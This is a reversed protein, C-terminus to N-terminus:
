GINSDQAVVAKGIHLQPVKDDYFAMRGQLDQHEDYPQEYSWVADHLVGDELVVDFYRATGKFPCESTTNSPQLKEMKVHSRPFYYRGPSGDENLRVVDGSEAIVEGNATVAMHQQVRLSQVKHEPHEQHGPSKAM